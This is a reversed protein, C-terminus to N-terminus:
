SSSRRSDIRSHARTLPLTRLRLQGRGRLRQARRHSQETQSQCPIGDAAEVVGHEVGSSGGQHTAAQMRLRVGTLAAPEDRRETRASSRGGVSVESRHRSCTAAERRSRPRAPMAPRPPLLRRRASGRDRRRPSRPPSRRGRDVERRTVAGHLVTSMQIFPGLGVSRGSRGASMAAGLEVSRLSRHSGAVSRAQPM